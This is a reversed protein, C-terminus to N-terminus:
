GVLWVRLWGFLCLGPVFVCLWKSSGPGVSMTTVCNGLRRFLCVFVFVARLCAVGSFVFVFWSCNVVVCPVGCVVVCVIINVLCVPWRVVCWWLLFPSLLVCACLFSYGFVLHSVCAPLLVFVGVVFVCRLWIRFLRGLVCM